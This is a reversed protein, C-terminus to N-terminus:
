FVQEVKEVRAPGGGLRLSDDVGGATVQDADRGGMVVDEVDLGFGNVPASGVDTPHCAVAVDNEPRQGVARGADDILARGVKRVLIAPPLDDLAVLRVDEVCGRRGDPSVHFPARLVRLLVVEAGEAHQAGDALGDVGLRPDPVALM